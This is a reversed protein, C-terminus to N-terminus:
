YGRKSQIQRTHAEALFRQAYVAAGLAGAYVPDLRSTAIPLGILRELAHRMGVNNSVGGTFLLDGEVYGTFASQPSQGCAALLLAALLAGRWAPRGRASITTGGSM